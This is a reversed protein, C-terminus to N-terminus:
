TFERGTTRPPLPLQQQPMIGDQQAVVGGNDQVARQRYYREAARSFAQPDIVLLRLDVGNNALDALQQEARKGPDAPDIPMGAYGRVAEQAHLSNLIRLVARAGKPTKIAEAFDSTEEDTLQALKKAYRDQLNPPLHTLLIVAAKEQSLSEQKDRLKCHCDAIVNVCNQEHSEFNGEYIRGAVFGAGISGVLGGLLMGFPLVPGLFYAGLFGGIAAAIGQVAYRALNKTPLEDLSTLYQRAARSGKNLQKPAMGADDLEALRDEVDYQGGVYEFGAGLANGVTGPILNVVDRGGQVVTRVIDDDANRPNRGM